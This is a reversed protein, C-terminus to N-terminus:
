LLASRYHGNHDMLTIEQMRMGEYVKEREAYKWFGENQNISVCIVLTKKCLKLMNAVKQRDVSVIHGYTYRKIYSGDDDSQAWTKSLVDQKDFCTDISHNLEYFSREINRPILSDHEDMCNSNLSDAIECTLQLVGLCGSRYPRGDDIFDDWEHLPNLLEKLFYDIHRNDILASKIKIDRRHQQNAMYHHLNLIIHDGIFLSEVIDSVRDTYKSDDKNSFHPDFDWLMKLKPIPGFLESIWHQGNGPMYSDLWQHYTPDADSLQPYQVRLADATYFMSHWEAYRDLSEIRPINGHRHDMYGYKFQDKHTSYWENVNDDCIGFEAIFKDCSATVDALSIGFIDTLTSYWYPLTDMRDFTFVLGDDIQENYAKRAQAAGISTVEIRDCKKLTDMDGSYLKQAIEICIEKALKRQLAHVPKISCAINKCKEYVLLCPDVNDLSIRKVTALLWLRASELYFYENQLGYNDLTCKDWYEFLQGVLESKGLLVLSKLAHAALWRRPKEPHGLLYWIYKGIAVNVTDNNHYRYNYADDGSRPHITLTEKSVVWKLINIAETESLQDALQKMIETIYESHTTDHQLIYEIYCKQALILDINFLRSLTIFGNHWPSFLKNGMLKCCESINDYNSKWETVDPWIQWRSLLKETEIFIQEMYSSSDTHCIMKSLVELREIYKDRTTNAFLKIFFRPIDVQTLRSFAQVLDKPDYTVGSSIYEDVDLHKQINDDSYAKAGIWGHFVDVQNLHTHFERIRRKLDESINQTELFKDVKAVFPKKHNLPVYEIIADIILKVIDNRAKISLLSIKDLVAEVVQEYGDMHDPLMIYALSIGTIADVVDSRILTPLAISMTNVIDLGDYNNRADMRSMISFLNNPSILALTSVMEEYPYNKTDGMKRLIDEAMRGFEHSLPVDNLNNHVTAKTVVARYIEIKRYEEFNIGNSADIAKSFLKRGLADNMASYIRSMQMYLQSSDYASSPYSEHRQEIVQLIEAAVQQSNVQKSCFDAMLLLSEQNFKIGNFINRIRNSITPIDERFVTLVLEMLAMGAIRKWKELDYDEITPYHCDALKKICRDFEKTDFPQDICCLAKTLLMFVPSLMQVVSAISKKREENRVDNVGSPAIWFDSVEIVSGQVCCQLARWKVCLQFHEIAENDYNSLSSVRYEFNSRAMIDLVDKQADITQCCSELLDILYKCSVTQLIDNDSNKLESLLSSHDYVETRGNQKLASYAAVKYILEDFQQVFESVVKEETSYSLGRVLQFLLDAGFSSPHWSKIWEAAPQTGKLKLLAYTYRLIDEERPQDRYSRDSRDSKQNAYHSRLKDSYADLLSTAKASTHANNCFAIISQGLSAFNTFNRGFVHILTEFDAYKSAQEPYERLLEVTADDTKTYDMIKYLVKFLKEGHWEGHAEMARLTCRCRQLMILSAQAADILSSNIQDEVSLYFLKDCDDLELLGWHAIKACYSNRTRAAVLYDSITRRYTQIASSAANQLFEQFDEDRFYVLEDQIYIGPFMDTCLSNLLAEPCQAIDMVVTVPIPHPLWSIAGLIKQLLENDQGYQLCVMELMERFLGYLEKGDPRLFDLIEGMSLLNKSLCYSQIRPNGGSLRHFEACEEDSIQPFLIRVHDISEKISFEKLTYKQQENVSPLLDLRETRCTYILRVSEPFWKAQEAMLNVFSQESSRKAAIVSNDAADIIIVILSDSNQEKIIRDAQYLRDKLAKLCSHSDRPRELLMDTSCEIALQNCIQMVATELLHRTEAPELFAGGGFCDYAIVVSGTPAYEALKSITTTKGVGASAHIYFPAREMELMQDIIDNLCEREIYGQEYSMIRSPAPFIYDYRCNLWACVVDKTIIFGRKSEPLMLERVRINVDNYKTSISEVGLSAFREYIETRIISRTDEGCDSFDLCLLFNIFDLSGLGSTNFLMQLKAQQDVHMKSLLSKIQKCKATKIIDVARDILSLLDEDVNRNSVLKLVLKKAVQNGLISRYEHFTDALRRIISNGKSSSFCISSLTWHLQSQYTSYKLQSFVVQSATTAEKGGYYEAIDISLLKSNDLGEAQDIYAPGEVSIASLSTQPQLLDFCKRMTWLLHFDDGANSAIAGANSVAEKTSSRKMM